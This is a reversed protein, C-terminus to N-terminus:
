KAKTYIAPVDVPHNFGLKHALVQSPTNNDWCSWAPILNQELCQEVFACAALMAFGQRRCPEATEISIEAGGGGVMVTHCRSVIEDGKMVAAGVGCALFHDLGGWFEAEVGVAEALQRNYRRVTYGTPIRERWTSHREAFVQPNFTFAKRTVHLRAFDAFLADLTDRWAESTPFLLLHGEAPPLKALMWKRMEANFSANDTQGATLFFGCLPAALAATPHEPDDVFFRGSHNGEFIAEILLQNHGLEQFLPRAKEYATKELEYIM